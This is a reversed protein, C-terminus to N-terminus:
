PRAPDGVINDGIFDLTLRNTIDPQGIHPQHGSKSIVHCKANPLKEALHPFSTPNLTHDDEGWLVLTPQRIRNLSSTLEPIDKTIYVFRPSARKYDVAIQQRAQSSFQTSTTPDWGMVTYILWEPLYRLAKEGLKPRHRVLRLLPSLQEPSYFPDILVLGRVESPRRIAHVMSIYGGLSHGVLIPPSELNLEDLWESFHQYISEVHYDGPDEPKISEGHGPLDAAYASYGKEALEPIM